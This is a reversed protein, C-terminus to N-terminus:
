FNPRDSCFKKNSEEVDAEVEEEVEGESEGEM